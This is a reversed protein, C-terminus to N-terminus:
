RGCCCCSMLRCNSGEAIDLFCGRSNEVEGFNWRTAHVCLCVLRPLTRAASIIVVGPGACVGVLGLFFDFCTRNVGPWVDLDPSSIMSAIDRGGIGIGSIRAGLFSLLPFTHFLCMRISGPSLIVYLTLIFEERVPDRQSLLTNM